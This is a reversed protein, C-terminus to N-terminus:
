FDRKDEERMGIEQWGSRLKRNGRRAVVWDPDHFPTDAYAGPLQLAIRLAEERTTM